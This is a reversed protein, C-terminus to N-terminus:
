ARPQAQARRADLEKALIERIVSAMSRQGIAAIVRLEDRMQNEFYLSIQSSKTM